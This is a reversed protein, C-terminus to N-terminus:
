SGLDVKAKNKRSAANQVLLRAQELYSLHPTNGTEDSAALDQVHLRAEHLYLILDARATALAKFDMATLASVDGQAAAHCAANAPIPPLKKVV